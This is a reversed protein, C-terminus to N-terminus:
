LSTAQRISSFRKLVSSIARCNPSGQSFSFDTDAGISSMSRPHWRHHLTHSSYMGDEAVKMQVSDSAEYSFPCLTEDYDGEIVINRTLLGVEARFSIIKGAFTKSEGLHVFSLDDKHTCNTPLGSSFYNPCVRIDHIGVTKRDSSLWKVTATESHSTKSSEMDTTAVLIKAGIPWNVAEMVQIQTDGPYATASLQTRCLMGIEDGWENM